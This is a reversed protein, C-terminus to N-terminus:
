RASSEARPRTIRIGESRAAATPATPAGRATSHQFRLIEGPRALAHASHAAVAAEAFATLILRQKGPYAAVDGVAFVGPLATQGTAPDVAVYRRDVIELGWDAMPGLSAELGFLPLLLDAELELMEAAGDMRRVRVGNLRGDRGVLSDLQYPTVLALSGDGKAALTRLKQESEPAARFRDRRHVVRVTQAVESLSLAWDVASDGGGAIVLRRGRFEERRRVVYSVAGTEEFERLGPLDPRIPEFAGAGAALVVTRATFTTGRDTSVRWGSGGAARTLTDVREGLRYDPRFPAVQRELRQVLEAADIREFAPIDYIPKEPYLAACQGGVTELADLVTTSLGLTGCQFAAFLGAPGAGIIAVDTSTV